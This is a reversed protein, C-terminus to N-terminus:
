IISMLYKLKSFCRRSAIIKINNYPPRLSCELSNNEISMLFEINVIADSSVQFYSTSIELLDKAKVKTKLKLVSRDSMIIEWTRLDKNFICCVLDSVKIFSVGFVTQVAYTNLPTMLSTLSSLNGAGKSSSEELVRKLVIALEEKKYPKLLFDFASSRIAEIMYKDFATYFVVKMYPNIGSNSSYLENLLTIGSKNPMEVDVFLLDPSHEIVLNEGDVPSTSTAVVEIYPYYSLDELLCDINEQIDDIIITRFKDM